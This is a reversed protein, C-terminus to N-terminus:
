EMEEDLDDPDMYKKREELLEIYKKSLSIDDTSVSMQEEIERLNMEIKKFKLQRIAENLEGIHDLKFIVSKDNALKESIELELLSLASVTDIIKIDLGETEYLDSLINSKRDVDNIIIELINKSKPSILDEILFDKRELLTDLNDYSKLAYKLIYRDEIPIEQLDKEIKSISDKEVKELENKILRTGSSKKIKLLESEKKLKYIEHLENQSLNLKQSMKNILMDHQLRDPVSEISNLISKIINSRYKPSNLDGMQKAVSVKFDIFDSADRVYSSFTNKGHKQIISDPDEGDPMQIIKVDLGKKLALDLAAGTAKLGARDSDYAIYITEVNRKIIELQADTFATGSSAIANEFGAQHLSIVDAYGETLIVYSKRQIENISEYWAYITKSKDYLFTDKTNIYKGGPKEDDMKRGGFAIIKGTRSRVPFMARGKFFDYPKQTKTYGILGAAEMDAIRIGKSSLHDLTDTWQDPCYGLKFKKISEQKFGRKLFYNITDEGISKYLNQHFFEAALDLAKLASERQSDKQHNRKGDNSLEFGTKEALYELSEPFTWGNYEMLFSYVNGGKGSSFDKFIQKDPSVTFSPTKENTFPSLAKYNAGSKKLTLFDSIIDVIDVSDRLRDIEENTAM